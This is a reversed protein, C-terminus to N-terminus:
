SPPARSKVLDVHDFEVFGEGRLREGDDFDEADVWGLQVDVSSGDSEAMREAAGSGFEGCGEEALHRAAFGLVAHYRHAYASAHSGSSNKLSHVSDMASCLILMVKSRRLM